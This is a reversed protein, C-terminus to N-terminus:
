NFETNREWYEIHDYEFQSKRPEINMFRELDIQCTCCDRQLKDTMPWLYYPELNVKFHNEIDKISQLHRGDKLIIGTCM